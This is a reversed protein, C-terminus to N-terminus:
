NKKCCISPGLCLTCREHFVMNMRTNKTIPDKMVEAFTTVGLEFAKM